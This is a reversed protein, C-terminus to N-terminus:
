KDHVHVMSRPGHLKNITAISKIAQVISTKKKKKEIYAVVKKLAKLCNKM